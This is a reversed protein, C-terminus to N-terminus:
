GHDGISSQLKQTSGFRTRAVTKLHPPRLGGAGVTWRRGADISDIIMLMLSRIAKCGVCGYAKDIGAKLGACYDCPRDRRVCDRQGQKYM